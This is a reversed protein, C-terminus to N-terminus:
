CLKILPQRSVVKLQKLGAPEPEKGQKEEQNNKDNDNENANPASELGKRFTSYDSASLVGTSGPSYQLVKRVTSAM